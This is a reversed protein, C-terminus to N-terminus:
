GDSFLRKDTVLPGRIRRNLAEKNSSKNIYYLQYSKDFM